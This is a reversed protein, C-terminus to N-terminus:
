IKNIIEQVEERANVIASMINTNMQDHIIYIKKRTPNKDYTRWPNPLPLKEKYKLTEKLYFKCVNYTDEQEQTM